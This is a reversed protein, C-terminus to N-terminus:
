QTCLEWTRVANADTPDLRLAVEIYPIASECQNLLYYCLALTYYTDITPGQTPGTSGSIDVRGDPAPFIPETRILQREPSRMTLFWGAYVKGAPAPPLGTLQVQYRGSLVDLRVYGGVPSDEGSGVVIGRLPMEPNEPHVFEARAIELAAPQAGLNGIDEATIVFFVTRWRARAEGYRIAPRFAEIADEYNRRQFYLIGLRSYAGGFTPDLEIARKLEAEAREYEGQVLLTWGLRDRSAADYPDAAVADEYVELALTYNGLALANRGIALYLQALHNHLEIAKRYERVAATYSGQSELVYAHNRVVDLHDPALLLATEIADNAAFWNGQAMYVEALYAYAEPLTPDLKIAQQLADRAEPLMRLWEYCLGLTAWARASEPQRRLAERAMVLAREPRGNLVLLRALELYVETQHPELDLARQYATIAQGVNGAWYADEAEAIYLLPSPTPTPMPTPTTAAFTFPSEEIVSAWLTYGIYSGALLLVLTLLLLWGRGRRRPRFLERESKLQM